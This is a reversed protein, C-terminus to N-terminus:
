SVTITSVTGDGNYAFTRTISAVNDVITNVSGDGNYTFDLDVGTGTIDTVAGGSYAFTLTPPAGGGLDVLDFWSNANDWVLSYGDEGAGPTGVNVDSLDNLVRGNIQAQTYYRADGRADTHYQAHDDDGLGTLGGHDGTLGQLDRKLAYRADRRAM